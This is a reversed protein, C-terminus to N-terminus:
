NELKNRLKEAFRKEKKSNPIGLFISYDLVSIKYELLGLLYLLEKKTFSIETKMNSILALRV